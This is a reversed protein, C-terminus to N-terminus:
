HPRGSSPTDNGLLGGLAHNLNNIQHQMDSLNALLMGTTSSQDALERKAEALEKTLGETKAELRTIKQASSDAILHFLELVGGAAPSSTRPGPQHGVIDMRSQQDTVVQRYHQVMAQYTQEQRRANEAELKAQREAVVANSRVYVLCLVLVILAWFM